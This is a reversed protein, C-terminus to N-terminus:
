DESSSLLTLSGCQTRVCESSLEGLADSLVV